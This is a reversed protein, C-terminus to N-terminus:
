KKDLLEIDYAPNGIIRIKTAIRKHVYHKYSSLERNYEYVGRFLIPGNNPERAFIIATDHNDNSTDAVSDKLEDYILTNWDESIANVCGFAAPEDKLTYTLKPFWCSYKDNLKWTAKMWADYDTGFCTNLVENIRYFELKDKADIEDIESYATNRQSEKRKAYSRSEQIVVKKTEKEIEEKLKSDIYFLDMPVTVTALGDFSVSLKNGSVAKIIAKKGTAKSIIAKGIISM